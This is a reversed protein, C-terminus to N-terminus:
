ERRLTYTITYIFSDCKNNWKIYIVKLKNALVIVSTFFKLSVWMNFITSLPLGNLGFM